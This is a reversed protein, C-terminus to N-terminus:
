GYYINKRRKQSLSIELGQFDYINSTYKEVIGKMRDVSGTDVIVIEDVIEEVAELCRAMTKEEDRVIMCLSIAIGQKNLLIM